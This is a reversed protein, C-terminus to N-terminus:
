RQLQVQHVLNRTRGIPGAPFCSAGIGLFVGVGRIERARACIQGRRDLVGVGPSKPGRDGAEMTPLRITTVIWVYRNSTARKM